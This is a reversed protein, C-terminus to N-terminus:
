DIDTVKVGDGNGSVTTKLRPISRVISGNIGSLGFLTQWPSVVDKVFVGPALTSPKWSLDDCRVCLLQGSKLVNM